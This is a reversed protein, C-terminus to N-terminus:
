HPVTQIADCGEFFRSDLTKGSLCAETDGFEMGIEETRFHALLDPFGDANVDKHQGGVAHVSPAGDPGFALTTVDVNAVHFDESGLVAIPVVGRSSPNIRNLGSGPTIDIDIPLTRLCEPGFDIVRLGVTGKAAYVLGDVM